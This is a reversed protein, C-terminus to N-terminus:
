CNKEGWLVLSSNCKNSLFLHGSLKFSDLSAINFRMHGKLVVTLFWKVPWLYKKQKKCNAIDVYHM